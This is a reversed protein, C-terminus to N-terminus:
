IPIQLNKSATNPTQFVSRVVHKFNKLLDGYISEKISKFGFLLIFPNLHGTARIFIAVPLQRLVCGLKQCRALLKSPLQDIGEVGAFIVSIKM